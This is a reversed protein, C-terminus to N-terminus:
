NWFTVMDGIGDSLLLPECVLEPLGGGVKLESPGHPLPQTIGGIIWIDRVSVYGGDFATPAKALRVSDTHFAFGIFEIGRNYHYPPAGWLKPEPLGLRCPLMFNDKNLLLETADNSLADRFIWSPMGSVAYEPLRKFLEDGFWLLAERKDQSNGKRAAARFRESIRDEEFEDSDPLFPSLLKSMYASISEITKLHGVKESENPEHTALGVLRNVSAFDTFKQIVESEDALGSCQGLFNTGIVKPLNNDEVINRFVQDDLFPPKETVIIVPGIALKITQVSKRWFVESALSFHFPHIFGVAVVDGDM